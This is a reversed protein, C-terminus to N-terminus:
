TGVELCSAFMSNKVDFYRCPFHEERKREFNAMKNDEDSRNLDANNVTSSKSGKLLAVIKIEMYIKMSM